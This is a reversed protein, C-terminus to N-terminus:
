CHRSPWLNEEESRPGLIGQVQESSCKECASFISSSTTRPRIWCPAESTKFGFHMCLQAMVTLFDKARYVYACRQLVHISNIEFFYLMFTSSSLQSVGPSRQGQTMGKNSLNISNKLAVPISPCPCFATSAGGATNLSSQYSDCRCVFSFGKILEATLSGCGSM